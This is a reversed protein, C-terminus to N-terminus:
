LRSIEEGVAPLVQMLGRAGAVSVARASFSSEQRILGAVLAPDLGRAKADRSLSWATSWPICCVTRARMASDATSSSRRWGCRARRKGPRYFHTRRRSCDIRLGAAAAEAADYEFRAEADMGLRELLAARAFASDVSAVTPFSDPRAPPTWPSQGLRRASAASYYSTPQQTVCM